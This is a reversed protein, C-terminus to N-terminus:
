AEQLLNLVAEKLSDAVDAGYASIRAEYTGQEVSVVDPFFHGAEDNSCSLVATHPLPSKEKIELVTRTFAEGTLGVLAVDGVRLVQTSHSTRGSFARAM